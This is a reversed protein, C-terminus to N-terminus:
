ILLGTPTRVNLLYWFLLFLIFMFITAVMLKFLGRKPDTMSRKGYVLVIALFAVFSSVYFGVKELAILYVLGIILVPWLVKWNILPQTAVEATDRNMIVKALLVAALIAIIVAAIRPFLYVEADTGVFSTYLALIAVIAAIVATVNDKVKFWTM